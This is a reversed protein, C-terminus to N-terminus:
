VSKRRKLKGYIKYLPTSFTIARGLATFFDKGLPVRPLSYEPKGELTGRKTTFIFPYFSRALSLFRSDYHGFPWSFTDVEVGLNKEILSKSTTLEEEVRKRAEEETEYRGLEELKMGKLQKRLATKWNRVGKPFDRCLRILTESPYFARVALASKTKFRPLGKFHEESYLLMTWHFNKGDYFDTPLHHYPLQLHTHGHSGFTFLDKMLNLESWTLYDNRNGRLYQAHSSGMSLPAQLENFSVKGEWYDKLTPRVKEECSIRDTSIFLHAPVSHKKLIPYAYVFNDAYGDDFTIAATPKSSPPSSLLEHLPVLKFRNKLIKLILEFSRLSLDDKGKKPYVKHLYFVVKM